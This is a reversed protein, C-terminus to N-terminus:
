HEFKLTATGNTSHISSSDDSQADFALEFPVRGLHPEAIVGFRVFIELRRKALAPRQSLTVVGLPTASIPIICKRIAASKAKSKGMAWPESGATVNLLSM